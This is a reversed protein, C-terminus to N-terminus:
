EYIRKIQKAREKSDLFLDRINTVIWVIILVILLLAILSLGAPIIYNWLINWIM